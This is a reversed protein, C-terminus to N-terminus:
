PRSLTAEVRWGTSQDEPTWAIVVFGEDLEITVVTRGPLGMYDSSGFRESIRRAMEFADGDYLYVVHDRGVEVVDLGPEDGFIDLAWGPPQEGGQDANERNRSCASSIAILIAIATLFVINLRSRGFSNGM